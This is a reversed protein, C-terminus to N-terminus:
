KRSGMCPTEQYQSCGAKQSVGQNYSYTYVYISCMWFLVSALCSRVYLPTVSSWSHKLDISSKLMDIWLLWLIWSLQETIYAIHYLLLKTRWVCKWSIANNKKMCNKQGLTIGRAPKQKHWVCKLYTIWFDRTTTLVKLLMYLWQFRRKMIKDDFNEQYVYKKALSTGGPLCPHFTKTYSIKVWWVTPQPCTLFLKQKWFSNESVLM